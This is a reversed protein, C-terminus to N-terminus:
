YYSALLTGTATFQQEALSTQPDKVLQVQLHPSSDPDVTIAKNLEIAQGEKLFRVGLGIVDTVAAHSDWSTPTARIMMNVTSGAALGKCNLQYDIDQIYEGSDVKNVGVNGFPVNIVQDNNVTCYSRQVLHGTFNFNVSDGTQVAAASASIILVVGSLVARIRWRLINIM